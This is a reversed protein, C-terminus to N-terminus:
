APGPDGAPATRGMFLCTYFARWVVEVDGIGAAAYAWGRAFDAQRWIAAAEQGQRTM